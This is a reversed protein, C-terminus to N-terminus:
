RPANSERPFSGFTWPCSVPRPLIRGDLRAAHLRTAQAGTSHARVGTGWYAGCSQMHGSARGGWAWVGFTPNSVSPAERSM